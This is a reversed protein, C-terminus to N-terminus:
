LIIEEKEKIRYVKKEEKLIAPVIMICLAGSHDPFVILGIIIIKSYERSIPSCSAMEARFGGM